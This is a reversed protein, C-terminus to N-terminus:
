ILCTIQRIYGELFQLRISVISITKKLFSKAFAKRKRFIWKREFFRYLNQYKADGRAGIRNVSMNRRVLKAFKKVCIVRFYADYKKAFSFSRDTNLNSNPCKKTLLNKLLLNEWFFSPFALCYGLCFKRHVICLFHWFVSNKRTRIKGCESQIRLKVSYIETNLGIAPFYSDSFVGYKSVKWAISFSKQMYNHVQDINKTYICKSKNYWTHLYM